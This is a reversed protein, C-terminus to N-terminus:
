VNPFRGKIGAEDIKKSRGGKENQFILVPSKGGFAEVVELWYKFGEDHVSQYDKRTDDVLVYLSSKTLFFQHTAHYVQQGGFDWVNLRFRGGGTRNFHQVHVDIGRTSQDENPLPQEPYYLRRLLSTKGAGGEGVLLVKAEYLHDVGQREIERFYNLVAEHGQWVIEPTPRVLPCGAVYIGDSYDGESWQLPIGAVVLAKLPSLDTIGTGALNLSRLGSPVRSWAVSRISANKALGLWKLRALGEAVASAGEDAVQNRSLDLSTLQTLNNAIAKAGEDGVQNSWLSLWTLQTLTNAIAMAGVDGVRNWRLDLSTLQTLNNAITKAGEDGVQNWGFYLSTLRRLNGAIAKAGKDSVQNDALHLSTLQTLNNSIAKAGEDGV